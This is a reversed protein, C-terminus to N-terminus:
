TRIGLLRRLDEVTEMVVIPKPLGYLLVYTRGGKDHYPSRPVPEIMMIRDGRVDVEIKDGWSEVRTLRVWEARM